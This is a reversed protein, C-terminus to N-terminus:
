LDLCAWGQRSLQGTSDAAHVRHTDPSLSIGLKLDREAKAPATAKCGTSIAPAANAINIVNVAEPVRPSPGSLADAVIVVPFM